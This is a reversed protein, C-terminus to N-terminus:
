DKPLSLWGSKCENKLKVLSIRTIEKKNKTPFLDVRRQESKGGYAKVQFDRGGNITKPATRCLKPPWKM